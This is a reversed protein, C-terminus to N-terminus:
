ASSRARRFRSRIAGRTPSLPRSLAASLPLPLKRWRTERLATDGSPLVASERLGHRPLFDGVRVQILRKGTHVRSEDELSVPLRLELTIEAVDLRDGRLRHRLCFDDAALRCVVHELAADKEILRHNASPALRDPLLEPRMRKQIPDHAQVLLEPV